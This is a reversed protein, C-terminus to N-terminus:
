RVIAEYFAKKTSLSVVKFYKVGFPDFITYCYINDFEKMVKTSAEQVYEDLIYIKDNHKMTYESLRSTIARKTPRKM